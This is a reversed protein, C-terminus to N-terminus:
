FYNLSSLRTRILNKIWNSAWYPYTKWYNASASWKWAIHRSDFLKETIWSNYQFRKQSNPNLSGFFLKWMRISRFCVKLAYKHLHMNEGSNLLRNRNNRVDSSFPHLKTAELDKANIEVLRTGNWIQTRLHNGPFAYTHVGACYSTAM